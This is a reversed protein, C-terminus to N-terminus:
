EALAAAAFSNNRTETNRKEGDDSTTPLMPKLIFSEVPPRRWVKNQNKWGQQIPCCLRKQINPYENTKTQSDDGKVAYTPYQNKTRKLIPGEQNQSWWRKKCSLDPYQNKTKQLIQILQNKVIM